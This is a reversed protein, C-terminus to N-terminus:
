EYYYGRRADRARRAENAPSYWQGSYPDRRLDRQTWAPCGQPPCTGGYVRNGVIRRHPYGSHWAKQVLSESGRDGLIGGALPMASAPAITALSLALVAASFLSRM